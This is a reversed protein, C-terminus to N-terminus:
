SLVEANKAQRVRHSFAITRWLPGSGWRREKKRRKVHHNMQFVISGVQVVLTFFIRVQKWSNNIAHLHTRSMSSVTFVSTGHKLRCPVYFKRWSLHLAVWKKKLYIVASIPIFYQRYPTFCCYGILWHRSRFFSLYVRFLLCNNSLTYLWELPSMRMCMAGMNPKWM